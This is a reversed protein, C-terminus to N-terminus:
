SYVFEFVLSTRLIESSANRLSIYEFKSINSNQLFIISGLRTESVSIKFYESM